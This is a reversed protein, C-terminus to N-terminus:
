VETAPPHLVTSIASVFREWRKTETSLQKRGNPTLRYFKARRNSESLGWEAEIMGRRAMRHLAPYLSGEEVVLADRSVQQIHRAIAYGHARGSTLTKLILMDLTGQMLESKKETKKAM